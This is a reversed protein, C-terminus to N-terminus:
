KDFIFAVYHDNYCFDNNLPSERLCKTFQGSPRPIKSYEKLQNPFHLHSSFIPESNVSIFKDCSKVFLGNMILYLLVHLYTFGIEYFLYPKEDLNLSLFHLHFCQGYSRIFTFPQAYAMPIM